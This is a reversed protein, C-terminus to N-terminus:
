QCTGTAPYYTPPTPGTVDLPIVGAAAPGNIIALNGAKTPTPCVAPVVASDPVPAADVAVADGSLAGDAPSADLAIAGGSAPSDVVTAADPAIAGGGGIAADPAVVGGTGGNGGAGM